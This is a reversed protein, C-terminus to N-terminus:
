QEDAVILWEDDIKELEITGKTDTTDAESMLDIIYDVVGIEEMVDGMFAAAEEETMAELKEQAEVEDKVELIDIMVKMIDEENELGLDALMKNEDMEISEYDPATMVYEVTAKDEDIEIDGIEYSMLKLIKDVLKDVNDEGIIQSVEAPILSDILEDADVESHAEYMDSDPSIYKVTGKIDLDCCADMYGKAVEEVLEEPTKEKNVEEKKGNAGCGAVMSLALVLSLLKATLKM